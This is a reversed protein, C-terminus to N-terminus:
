ASSLFLINLWTEEAVLVEGSSLQHHPPPLKPAPPPTKAPRGYNEKNGESTVIYQDVPTAPKPPPPPPHNTRGYSHLLLPSSERTPPATTPAPPTPKPRNGCIANLKDCHEILTRAQSNVFIAFLLILLLSRM